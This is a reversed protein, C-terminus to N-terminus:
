AVESFDIYNSKSELAYCSEIQYTLSTNFVWVSEMGKQYNPLVLRDAIVEIGIKDPCEAFGADDLDRELQDPTVNKLYEMMVEHIKDMLM